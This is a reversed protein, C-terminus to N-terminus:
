RELNEALYYDHREALDPLGSHFKGAVQLARRWLETRGPSRRSQFLQSVGRRVLESVSVGEEAALQRLLSLQEETLQVQTRIM